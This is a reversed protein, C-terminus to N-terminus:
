TPCVPFISTPWNRACPFPAQQILRRQRNLTRRAVEQEALELLFQEYSWGAQQADLALDAYQELFAALQLTKLHQELPVNTTM